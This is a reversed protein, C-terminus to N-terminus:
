LDKEFHFQKFELHGLPTLGHRCALPVGHNHPHQADQNAQDEDIRSKGLGNVWPSTHIFEGLVEIHETEVLQHRSRQCKREYQRSDLKHQTKKYKNTGVAATSRHQQQAHHCHHQRECQPKGDGIRHGVAAAKAISRVHAVPAGEELIQEYHRRENIQDHEVFAHM